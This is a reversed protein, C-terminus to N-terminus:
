ESVPELRRIVIGGWRGFRFRDLCGLLFGLSRRSRGQLLLTSGCWWIVLIVSSPVSHFTTTNELIDSISWTDHNRSNLRMDILKYCSIYGLQACDVNFQSLGPSHPLRVKYCVNVVRTGKNEQGSKVETENWRRAVRVITWPISQGM